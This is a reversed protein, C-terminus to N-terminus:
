QHLLCRSQLIEEQASQSISSRYAGIKEKIDHVDYVTEYYKLVEDYGQYLCEYMDIICPLEKMWSPYSEDYVFLPSANIGISRMFNLLTDLREDDPRKYLSYAKSM